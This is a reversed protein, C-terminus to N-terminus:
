ESFYHQVITILVPVHNVELAKVHYLSCVSQALLMQL